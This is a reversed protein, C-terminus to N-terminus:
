LVGLFALFHSSLGRSFSLISNNASQDLVAHAEVFDPPLELTRELLTDEKVLLRQFGRPGGATGARHTGGHFQVRTLSAELLFVGGWARKIRTQPKKSKVGQFIGWARTYNM